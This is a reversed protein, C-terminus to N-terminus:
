KWTKVKDLIKKYYKPKQDEISGFITTKVKYGSFKLSSKVVKTPNGMFYYAFRPAGTTTIIHAQKKLLPIYKKGEKNFAFGPLLIRDFFGKLLAPCSFWWTPYILVLKDAWVMLKQAQVLDPELKQIKKYGKHLIPDFKLDALNLIQIKKKNKAYTHAIDNCFSDKNPHGIIILTKM